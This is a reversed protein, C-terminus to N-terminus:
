RKMDGKLMMVYVNPRAFFNKYKRGTSLVWKTEMRVHIEIKMNIIINNCIIREIFKHIPIM